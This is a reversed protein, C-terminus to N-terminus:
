HASLADTAMVTARVPVDAGFIRARDAGDRLARGRTGAAQFGVFLVTTSAEPLRRRLHNLIRGGTAMGSGSIVIAPGQLDNLRKPDEVTRCVHFQRPVFPE